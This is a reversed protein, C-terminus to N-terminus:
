GLAGGSGDIGEESGRVPVFVSWADGPLAFEFCGPAWRLIAQACFVTRRGANPGADGGAECSPFLFPCESKWKSFCGFLPPNRSCPLRAPLFRAPFLPPGSPPAYDRYREVPLAYTSPYGPNYERSRVIPEPMGLLYATLLITLCSICTKTTTTIIRPAGVSGSRARSDREPDVTATRTDYSREMHRTRASDGGDEFLPSRFACLPGARFPTIFAFPLPRRQRVPPRLSSPEATQITTRLPSDIREAPDISDNNLRAPSVVFPSM